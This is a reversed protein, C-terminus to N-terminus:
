CTWEMSCGFLGHGSHHTMLMANITSTVFQWSVHTLFKKNFKSGTHEVIADFMKWFHPCHHDADLNGIWCFLVPVWEWMVNSWACSALLNGQHFFSHDVDTVFGHQGVSPGDTPDILWDDIAEKMIQSM